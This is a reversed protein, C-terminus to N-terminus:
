YVVYDGQPHLKDLLQDLGLSVISSAIQDAKINYLLAMTSNYYIKAGLQEIYKLYEGYDHPLKTLPMKFHSALAKREREPLKARDMATSQIGLWGRWGFGKSISIVASGDFIITVTRGAKLAALAINPFVCIQADDISLATKVHILLPRGKPNAFSFNPILIFLSLFISIYMVSKIKIM